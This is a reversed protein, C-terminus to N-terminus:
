RMVLDIAVGEWVGDRASYDGVHLVLPGVPGEEITFSYHGWADAWATATTFDEHVDEGSQELRVVVNSEFTRAYGSVTLPYSAPGPRPELVVVQRARPAPEPVPPGGPRLDLVVRAPQDLATVRAEAPGALHVDVYVWRGHPSWVSYAAGTLRGTFTTDTATAEVWEVDRLSLRVVGLERLVDGRVEGTGEAAEGDETALDIVVRECGDYSHWRLGQVRDADSIEASPVPISGDVVFPGGQMCVPADTREAVVDVGGAGDGAMGEGIGDGSSCATLALTASLVLIPELSAKM